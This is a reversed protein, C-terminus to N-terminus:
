LKDRNKKFWEMREKTLKNNLTSHIQGVPVDLNGEEEYQVYRDYDNIDFPSRVFCSLEHLFRETHDELFPKLLDISKQTKIGNEKVISLVYHKIMDVNDDNLIAVLERELWPM